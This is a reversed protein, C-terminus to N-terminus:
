FHLILWKAVNLFESNQNKHNKQVKKLSFIVLHVFYVAGLNAFVGTKSSRSDVFNIERLNQTICFDYFKWVTIILRRNEGNKLTFGM